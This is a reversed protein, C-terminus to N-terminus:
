TGVFSYKTLVEKVRRLASVASAAEGHIADLGQELAHRGEEGVDTTCEEAEQQLAHLVGELTTLMQSLQEGTDQRAHDCEGLSFTVVQEAHTHADAFAQELVAELEDMRQGWDAFAEDLRTQEDFIHGRLSLGRDHIEQRLHQLENVLEEQLLDRAQGLAQELAAEAAQAREHLQHAAATVSELLSQVQPEVSAVHEALAGLGHSAQQMAADQDARADHLGSALEGLAHAAAQGQEGLAEKEHHVKALVSGFREELGAWETDLHGATDALRHDLEALQHQAHQIQSDLDKLQVVLDAAAADLDAV